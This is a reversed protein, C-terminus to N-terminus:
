SAKLVQPEHSKKAPSHMEFPSWQSLMCHQVYHQHPALQIQLCVTHVIWVLHLLFWEIRSLDGIAKQWGIIPLSINVTTHTCEIDSLTAWMSLSAMYVCHQVKYDIYTVVLLCYTSIQMCTSFPNVLCSITMNLSLSQLELSCKTWEINKANNHLYRYRAHEQWVIYIESKCPCDQSMRNAIYEGHCIVFIHHLM